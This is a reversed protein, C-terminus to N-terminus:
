GAPCCARWGVHHETATLSPLDRAAAQLCPPRRKPAVVAAERYCTRKQLMGATGVCALNAKTLKPRRFKSHSQQRTVAIVRQWAFSPYSIMDLQDRAARRSHREM